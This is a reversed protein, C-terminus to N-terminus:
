GAFEPKIGKNGLRDFAEIIPGAVIETWTRADMNLLADANTANPLVEINLSEIMVGGSGFGGGSLANTLDKNQAPPIVREGESLLYTGSRPVYSLGNDAQGVIAGLGKGLAAGATFSAAAGATAMSAMAPALLNLPWPAAAQSAFMNAGALGIAKSAESAAETTVLAKSLSALITRQIAMRVLAQIVNAIVSQALSKLGEMLSKGYVITQAFANGIGASIDTVMSMTVAAFEQQVTGIQIRWEEIMSLMYDSYSIMSKQNINNMAENHQRALEQLQENYTQTDALGSVHADELLMKETEYRSKLREEESLLSQSLAAYKQRLSDEFAQLNNDLAKKSEDNDAGFANNINNKVNDSVDKSQAQMADFKERVKSFFSEIKDSPLGETAADHADTLAQAIAKVREAQDRMMVSTLDTKRILTMGDLGVVDAIANVGDILDNVRSIVKNISWEIMKVTQVVVENVAFTYSYAAAKLLHWIVEIGKIANALIGVSKATSEIANITSIAWSAAHKKSNELGKGIEEDIQQAIAKFYDFLGGEMVRNRFQFWKDRMMSLSGEWTKGLEDAAGRFKSAPDEFAEILRKRTEEASYSVGAQFGLMSLVGRERFMDASAAGASYMRIVQSTTDQVSLGTVAALDGIMPMWQVVEDVGGKMVGSLATASEMVAEYSHPVKSAYESMEDFLRNGESVSGLLATLRVKLQETTSAAGIFSKVLGGVGAAALAGGIVSKMNFLTKNLGNLKSRIKDVGKTASSFAASFENKGVIRYEIVNAM